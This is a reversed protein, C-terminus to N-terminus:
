EIPVADTYYEDIKTTGYVQFVKTLVTIKHQGSTYEKTDVGDAFWIHTGYNASPPVFFFFADSKDDKGWVKGTVEFKDQVLYATPMCLYQNSVSTTDPKEETVSDSLEGVVVVKQHTDLLLIEEQPLYIDIYWFGGISMSVHDEGIGIYGEIQVIRNCYTKKARVRNSAFDEGMTVRDVVTAQALMDEKSLISNSASAEGASATGALREVYDVASQYDGADLFDILEEYKDYKGANGACSTLVFVCVCALLLAISKKM